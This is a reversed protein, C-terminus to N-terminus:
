VLTMFQQSIEQMVSSFLRITRAKQVDTIEPCAETLKEKLIRCQEKLAKSDVPMTLSSLGSNFEQNFFFGGKPYAICMTPQAIGNQNPTYEFGFYVAQSPNKMPSELFRFVQVADDRAPIRVKTVVFNNGFLIDGSPSYMKRVNYWNQISKIKKGRFGKRQITRVEVQAGITALICSLSFRMSRTCLAGGVTARSRIITTGISEIAKFTNKSLLYSGTNLLQELTTVAGIELFRDTHTIKQLEPVGLISIIDNELPETMLFTGGAFIIADPNRGKEMILDNLTKPIYISPTKIKDAVKDGESRM